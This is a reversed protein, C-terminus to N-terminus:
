HQCRLRQAREVTSQQMNFWLVTKSRARMRKIRAKKNTTDTRHRDGGVEIRNEGM